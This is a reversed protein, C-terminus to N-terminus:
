FSLNVGITIGKPVPYSYYDIGQNLSNGSGETNVDPDWWPYSTLTVLNQGSVFIQGNGRWKSNIKEFVIDYGLRITKLRLYSGDYVFQDAMRTSFTRDLYPYKAGPNQPSWHNHLVESLTNYGQYYKYNQNIMGFAFIDNGQTGQIFVNLDFNKWKLNSNLGYIFKPNPDGIWTKDSENIIGDQNNDKYTYRGLDDFGALQYGYFRSIPQNERLLNVYDSAVILNYVGGRIEQGDYLQRVKNKNQSLTLGLNWRFSKGTILNGDLQLEFGKNQIAGVNRVTSSYGFSRPLQVTNLLDTTKKIYYDATIQFRNKFLGLELGVDTQSTTEWRLNAPYRTGPAFYTYLNDAFPAKGSQLMDLTYYPPIATSGTRGYSTRIKADSVFELRKMFNEEIFRWALAASPFYAWKNNSSYRSSGDARFSLTALLKERFAYNVRGLGSLLTWQTFSSSPVQPTAAAGLNSTETVDSLFGLGSASFAKITQREYTFASMVTLSHNRGFDRQYTVINDSNVYLDTSTGISASGASGPFRVSTYNDSRQDMNTVNGSLKISLGELPKLTFALNAMVRNEVQSQSVENLYAVPNIVDDPSFPYLENMLTYSGDPKYPGVTPAATLAALLLSRNNATPNNNVRGLIANYAVSLKPTLDHNVNARLVIRRYDSNKIIGQQDLYSTGISFQTKANGGSVNLSHDQVLAQRFIQDQWDTGNGFGRIDDQSFYEKGQTNKWFINYMEAYEGADMMDLKKRVTQFSFSSNFDVKTKGAKGRKTTVLIVGNAGRSGYIATASADKLIEIREVDAPNLIAANGPFGDVIWLPDNSGQISNTGRIRVQMVAGPAGSNQQVHVGAARGQLAQTINSTPFATLDGAKVSSVSGTLDRKKVTGYGVVVVENLQKDDVVLKVVIVSNKGVPIEQSLYGVFSFMLVANEDAVDISFNGGADTTTGKQIGKIVISVGPLSEGRADMVKGSVSHIIRSEANPTREHAPKSLPGISPSVSKGGKKQDIIEQLVTVMKTLSEMGVKDDQYIIVYKSELIVYKLKTNKLVSTLAQSIDSFAAADFPRKIKVGEIIERDFTFHVHFRKNLDQIVKLLSDQRLTGASTCIVSCLVLIGSLLM